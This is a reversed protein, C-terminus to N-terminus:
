KSAKNEPAARKAKNEAADKAWGERLAVAILEHDEAEVFEGEAYDRREYGKHFFSFNKTIKLKM